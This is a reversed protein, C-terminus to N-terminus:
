KEGAVDIAKKKSVSVLAARLLRDRYMYGKRMEQVVTKDPLDDREVEIMAQEYRPDFTKGACRVEEVGYRSFVKKLEKLTMEIGQALGNATDNGVHTLSVELNDAVTLLDSILPEFGYNNWEQREKAVRKRYNDFEAYLRLYKDNLENCKQQLENVKDPSEVAAEAQMGSDECTANKQTQTAADTGEKNVTQELTTTETNNFREQEAGVANNDTLGSGVATTDGNNINKEEEVM